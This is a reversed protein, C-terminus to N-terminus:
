CYHQDHIIDVYQMSSSSFQAASCEVNSLLWPKFLARLHNVIFSFRPVFHDPATEPILICDPSSKKVYAQDYVPQVIKQSHYKYLAAHRHNIDICFVITQIM